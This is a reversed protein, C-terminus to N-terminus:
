CCTATDQCTPRAKSIIYQKLLMHSHRPLSSKGKLYHVAKAVHPQPGPMTATCKLDDLTEAVHPQPRQLNATGKFYHLAEAVHTQPLVLVFNMLHTQPRRLNATGKPDHLAEAVHPQSIVALRGQRKLDHGLEQRAVQPRTLMVATAASLVWDVYV